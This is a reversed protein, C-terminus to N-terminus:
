RYTACWRLSYNMRACFDGESLPAVIATAGAADAASLNRHSFDSLVGVLSRLDSDLLSESGQLDSQAADATVAEDPRVGFAQRFVYGCAHTPKDPSFMSRAIYYDNTEAYTQEDLKPCDVAAPVYSRVWKDIALPKPSLSLDLVQLTGEVNIVVAIHHDWNTLTSWDSDTTGDALVFQESGSLPGTLHIQATDVAPRSVIQQAVALPVPNALPGKVRGARVSHEIMAARRNCNEQIWTWPVGVTAGSANVFLTERATQALAEAEAATVPRLAPSWLGPSDARGGNIGDDHADPDTCASLGAVNLGSVVVLALTLLRHNNRM